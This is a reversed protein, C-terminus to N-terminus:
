LQIINSSSPASMETDPLNSATANPPNYQQLSAELAAALDADYEEFENNPSNMTTPPTTTNQTGLIPPNHM